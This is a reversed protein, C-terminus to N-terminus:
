VRRIRDEICRPSKEKCLKIAKIIKKAAKADKSWSAEYGLHLASGRPALTKIFGVGILENTAISKNPDQLSNRLM